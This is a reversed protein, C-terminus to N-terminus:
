NMSPKSLIKLIVDMRGKATGKPIGFHADLGDPESGLISLYTLSSTFIPELDNALRREVKKGIAFLKDNLAKVMAETVKTKFEPLSFTLNIIINAM